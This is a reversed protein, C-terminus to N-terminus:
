GKSTRYKNLVAQVVRRDDPTALSYLTAVDQLEQPMVDYKDGSLGLLWDVSVDFFEALKIVYKLDPTRDGSLYRSITASPLEVDEALGQITYGRSEMFHRLNQKFITFDM